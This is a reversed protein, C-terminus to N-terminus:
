VRPRPLREGPDFGLGTEGQFEQHTMGCACPQEPSDWHHTHVQGDATESALRAYDEPTHAKACCCCVREVTVGRERMTKAMTDSSRAWWVTAGCRDCTKHVSGRVAAGLVVHAPKACVILATDGPGPESM